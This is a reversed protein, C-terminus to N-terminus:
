FNWKWIYMSDQSKTIKISTSYLVRIGHISYLKPFLLKYLQVNWFTVIAEQKSHLAYLTKSLPNAWLKGQLQFNMFNRFKGTFCVFFCIILHNLSIYTYLEHKINLPWCFLFRLVFAKQLFDSNWNLIIKFLFKIGLTNLEYSLLFAQM